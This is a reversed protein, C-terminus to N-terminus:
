ALQPLVFITSVLKMYKAIGNHRIGFIDLIKIGIHRIGFDHLSVIIVGNGM